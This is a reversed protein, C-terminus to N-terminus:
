WRSYAAAGAGRDLDGTRWPHPVEIHTWGVGRNHLCYRSPAPECDHRYDGASVDGHPHAPPLVLAGATFAGPVIIALDLAHTILTTSHGLLTPPHGTIFSTLPAELWIALTLVGSAILFAGIGRHPVRRCPTFHAPTHRSHRGSPDPLLFSAGFLAVYVLFLANFATGFSLAAYVYLFYTLAGSLLLRGRASRRQYRLTAAVLLPVDFLLTVLDVGRQGSGAMLSDYRYLGQGYVKATEGRVTTFAYPAGGDHIFLGCGAAAIALLVILGCLRVVISNAM